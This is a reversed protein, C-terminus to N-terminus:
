KCIKGVLREKLKNLFYYQLPFNCLLNIYFIKLFNNSSSLKNMFQASRNKQNIRNRIYLIRYAIIKLSKKNLGCSIMFNVLKKRSIIDEYGSDNQDHVRYSILPKGLWFIHGFDLKSSLFIVDSFKGAASFISSDVNFRGSRYMYSPFPASGGSFPLYFTLFERKNSIITDVKSNKFALAGIKKGFRDILFANCAVASIKLNNKLIDTCQAVYNNTLVDDDHFITYFDSDSEAEDIVLKIHQEGLLSPTRKIYKFARHAGYVDCIMTYVSNGVSNDSVVVEFNIDGVNQSIASEIAHYLYIPRDRSLIYIKVKM